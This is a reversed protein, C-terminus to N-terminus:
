DYMPTTGGTRDVGDLGDVEGMAKLAARIKAAKDQPSDEKEGPIPGNDRWHFKAKCLFMAAPAYGEKAQKYLISTLKEEMIARGEEYAERIDDHRKLWNFFLARSCKLVDCMATVTAGYEAIGQRILEVAHKPPKKREWNGAGGRQRARLSGKEAWQTKARERLKERQAATMKPKPIPQKAVSKKVTAM